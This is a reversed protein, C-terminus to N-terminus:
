KGTDSFHHLVQEEFGNSSIKLFGIKNGGVGPYIGGLPLTTIQKIIGATNKARNFESNSVEKARLSKKDILFYKANHIHSSILVINKDTNKLTKLLEAGGNLITDYSIKQKRTLEDFTDISLQYEKGICSKKPNILPAHQFILIDKSINKSLVQSLYNFDDQNLGDSDYSIVRTDLFKKLYKLFNGARVFADSGSDLFICHYKAIRIDERKKIHRGKTLPDMKKENVMISALEWPGRFGQHGIQHKLKKRVTKSLNVHDTGWIAYNYAEKRYDHNGPIAMYQKKLRSIVSNFLDWNSIRESDRSNKILSLLSIFDSYHYDISDGNNIVAEVHPSQNILEVFKRLEQNPNLYKESLHPNQKLYQDITDWNKSYHTDGFVIIQKEM